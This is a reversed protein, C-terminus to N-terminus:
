RRVVMVPAVNNPVPIRTLVYTTDGISDNYSAGANAHGRNMQSRNMHGHNKHGPNAPPLLPATAANRNVAAAAARPHSSSPQTRPRCRTFGGKCACLQGPNSCVSCKYRIASSAIIIHPCVFYVLPTKFDM